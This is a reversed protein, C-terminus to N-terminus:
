VVPLDEEALQDGEALGGNADAQDETREDADGRDAAREHVEVEHEGAARARVRDQEEEAEEQDESPLGGPVDSEVAVEERDEACRPPCRTDRDGRTLRPQLRRLGRSGYSRGAVRSPRPSESR